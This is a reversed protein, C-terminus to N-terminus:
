ARKEIFYPTIAKCMLFVFKLNVAYTKDWDEESNNTFPMGPALAMGANNVLIDIQGLEKRIRELSAQVDASRTVDCRMGVAKRGVLQRIKLRRQLFAGLVEVSDDIDHM